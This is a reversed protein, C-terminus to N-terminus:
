PAGGSFTNEADFHHEYQDLLENWTIIWPIRGDDGDDPDCFRDNEAFRRNLVFGPSRAGTACSEQAGRCAPYGDKDGKMHGDLHYMLFQCNQDSVAFHPLNAPAALADNWINRVQWRDDSSLSDIGFASETPVFTPYVEDGPNGPHMDIRVDVDSSVIVPWIGKALRFSVDGGEARVLDCIQPLGSGRPQPRAALLTAKRDIPLPIVFPPVPIPIFVTGSVGVELLGTDDTVAPATLSGNSLAIRPVGAPFGGGPGAADPDYEDLVESLIRQLEDFRSDGFSEGAPTPQGDPGANPPPDLDAASLACDQLEEDGNWCETEQGPEVFNSVLERIADTAFLDRIRGAEDGEAGFDPDNILAQLSPPLLVGRHPAEFSMYLAVRGPGDVTGDAPYLRFERMANPDAAIADELEWLRLAARAVLGGTSVGGVALERPKGLSPNSVPLVANSYDRQPFDLIRQYLAPARRAAELVAPDSIITDVLWVDYGNEVMRALIHESFGPLARRFGEVGAAANARCALIDPPECGRDYVTCPACPGEIAGECPSTLVDGGGEEHFDVYQGSLLWYLYGTGDERLPDFAEHIVVPLNNPKPSQTSGETAVTLEPAVWDRYPNPDSTVLRAALRGVVMDVVDDIPGTYRLDVDQEDAPPPRVVARTPLADAGCQSPRVCATEVGARADDETIGFDAFQEPEIYTLFRGDEDTMAFSDVSVISPFSFGGGSSEEEVVFKASCRVRLNQRPINRRGENIGHDIFGRLYGDCRWRQTLPTTFFNVPVARIRLTTGVKGRVQVAHVSAAHGYTLPGSDASIAAPHIATDVFTQGNVILEQIGASDRSEVEICLRSPAELNLVEARREGEGFRINLVERGANADECLPASDRVEFRRAAAPARRGDFTATVVYNGTSLRAISEPPLAFDSAEEIPVEFVEAVRECSGADLVSVAFSEVAEVVGAALQERAEAVQRESVEEFRLSGRLERSGSLVYAKGFALTVSANVGDTCPYPDVPQLHARSAVSVLPPEFPEPEPGPPVSACGVLLLLGVNPYVRDAVKM